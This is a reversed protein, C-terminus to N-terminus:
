VVTLILLVLGLSEYSLARSNLLCVFIRPRSRPSRSRSAPSAPGRRSRRRARRPRWRHFLFGRGWGWFSPLGANGVSDLGGNCKDLSTIRNWQDPRPRPSTRPTRACSAGPGRRRRPWLKRFTARAFVAFRFDPFVIFRAYHIYTHIYIYM